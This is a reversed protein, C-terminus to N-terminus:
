ADVQYVVQGDREAVWGRIHNFHYDTGLGRKERFEVLTPQTAGTEDTARSLLTAPGGTWRWMRSFRTRAKSLVPEQLEATTWTAGGDTSVEVRTIKGRGSWAIGAIQVWENRGLRVPHAPHTIISKVDMIFSFQRSTGNPLPDTYRSTEDRSMNLQAILELRRLWKVNTNGEWGPLLLRVPYGAAPRLAEGNQAYVLLADDMAKELLVSRSLLAADGGEALIWAAGPKIGVEALVTTLPVGTWEANSTLGDILQPTLERKPSRYAARGNGSCELFYIRTISPLRKLDELMFVTPRDVLGHILLRYDAPSIIPVGAHHREFHLDTPTITGSLEQLPSFSAGTVQGTPTRAPQEFPSRVSTASTPEGLSRGLQQASGSSPVQREQAQIVSSLTGLLAAGATAATGVLLGRRTIVPSDAATPQTGELENSTISEPEGMPRGSSPKRSTM